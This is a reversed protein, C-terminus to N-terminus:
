ICKRIYQKRILKITFEYATNYDKILKVSDISYNRHLAIIRDLVFEYIVHELTSLIDNYKIINEASSTKEKILTHSKDKEDCLQNMLAYFEQLEMM